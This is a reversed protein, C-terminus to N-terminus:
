QMTWTSTAEMFGSSVEVSWTGDGNVTGSFEINDGCCDAASGSLTGCVDTINGGSADGCIGFPGCFLGDYVGGSFDSLSYSGGGADTVTVTYLYDTIPNVGCCGIGTSSVLYTGALDSPCSVPFVIQASFETSTHIDSGYNRTGDDNFMNVETGNTLYLKATVVLADALEIDDTSTIESFAVIIDDQSLIFFETPFSNIGSNLTIPGYVSGDSKRYFAIVDASSVDGRAIDISYGVQVDNGAILENLNIFGDLSSLKAMDPVGGNGFDIVSDGGDDQCSIIFTSIMILVILKKLNKM